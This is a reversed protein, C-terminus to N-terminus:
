DERGHAMPMPTTQMAEVKRAVEQALAVKDGFNWNEFADVVADYVDRATVDPLRRMGREGLVTWEQGAYARGRRFLM